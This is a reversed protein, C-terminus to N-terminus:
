VEMYTQDNLCILNFNFVFTINVNLIKTASIHTDLNLRSVQVLSFVNHVRKKAFFFEKDLRTMKIEIKVLLYEIQVFCLKDHM